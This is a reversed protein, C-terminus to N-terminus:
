GMRTTRSVRGPRKLLGRLRACLACHPRPAVRDNSAAVPRLVRELAQGPPLRTDGAGLWWSPGVDAAAADVEPSSPSAARTSRQVELEAQAELDARVTAVTIQAYTLAVGVLVGLVFITFLATLM